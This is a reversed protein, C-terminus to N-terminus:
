APLVDTDVRAREPVAILEYTKRISLLLRHEDTLLLPNVHPNSEVDDPQCMMSFEVHREDEALILIQRFRSVLQPQDGLLLVPPDFHSRRKRHAWGATALPPNILGVPHRNIPVSVVM